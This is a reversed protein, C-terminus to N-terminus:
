YLMAAQQQLRTPWIQRQPLQRGQESLSPRQLKWHRRCPFIRRVKAAFSLRPAHPPLQPLPKAALRSAM